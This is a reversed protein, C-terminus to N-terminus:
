HGQNLTWCWFMMVASSSDAERQLHESERLPVDSDIFVIMVSMAVSLWSIM